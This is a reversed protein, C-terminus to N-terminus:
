RSTLTVAPWYPTDTYPLPVESGIRSLSLRLRPHHRRAALTEMAARQAEYGIHGFRQAVRRLRPAGSRPDKKAGLM